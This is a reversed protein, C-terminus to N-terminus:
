ESSPASNWSPRYRYGSPLTSPRTSTPNRVRACCRHSGAAISTRTRGSRWSDPLSPNQASVFAFSTAPLFVPATPIATCSLAGSPAVALSSSIATVSNTAPSSRHILPAPAASGFAVTLRSTRSGCMAPYRLTSLALRPPPATSRLTVFIASDASEGPDPTQGSRADVGPSM